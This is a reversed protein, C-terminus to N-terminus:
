SIDFHIFLNGHIDKIFGPKLFDNEDSGEDM